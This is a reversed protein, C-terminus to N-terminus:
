GPPVAGEKGEGEDPRPTNSKSRRDDAKAVKVKSKKTPSKPLFTAHLRATEFPDLDEGAKVTRELIRLMRSLSATGLDGLGKTKSLPKSHSNDRTSQRMRKMPRAIKTLYGTLKRVLSTALLPSASDKTLPSFFEPPLDNLDMDPPLADEAEFIDELLCRLKDLPAVYPLLNSAINSLLLM